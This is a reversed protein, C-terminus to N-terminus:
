NFLDILMEAVDNGSAVPHETAHLSLHQQHGIAHSAMCRALFGTAQGNLVKHFAQETANVPVEMAIIFALGFEDFVQLSEEAIGMRADQLFRRLMRILVAHAGRHGHRIPHPGPHIHHMRPVTTTIQNAIAFRFLDGRIM